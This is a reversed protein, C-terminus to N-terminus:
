VRSSSTQVVYLRFYTKVLLVKNWWLVRLMGNTSSHTAYLRGQKYKGTVLSYHPEDDSSHNDDGQFENAIFIRVILNRLFSYCFSLFFIHIVDDGYVIVDTRIGPLLQQFDTIYDGTWEKSRLLIIRYHPYILSLSHIKKLEQFDWSFFIHFM